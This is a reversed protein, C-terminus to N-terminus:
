KYCHEESLSHVTNYILLFHFFRFSELTSFEVARSLHIKKLEKKFSHGVFKM